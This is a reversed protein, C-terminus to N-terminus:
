YINIDNENLLETNERLTIDADDHQSFIELKWNNNSICLHVHRCKFNLQKRSV